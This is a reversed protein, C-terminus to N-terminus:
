IKESNSQYKNQPPIVDLLIAYAMIRLMYNPMTRNGLEWDQLTRYPINLYACFEKRTMGKFKRLSKIISSSDIEKDSSIELMELLEEKNLVKSEEM